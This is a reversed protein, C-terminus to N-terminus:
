CTFSLIDVSALHCFFLYMKHSHTLLICNGLSFYKSIGRLSPHTRFHFHSNDNSTNVDNNNCTMNISARHYLVLDMISIYEYSFYTCRWKAAAKCMSYEGLWRSLTESRCSARNIRFLIWFIVDCKIHVCVSGPMSHLILYSVTIIGCLPFESTVAARTYLISLFHSRFLSYLFFTIM